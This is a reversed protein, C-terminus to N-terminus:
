ACEALVSLTKQVDLICNLCVASNEESNDMSARIGLKNAAVPFWEWLMFLEGTPSNEWIEAPTPFGGGDKRRAVEAKSILRCIDFWTISIGNDACVRDKDDPEPRRFGVTCGFGSEIYYGDKDIMLSYYVGKETTEPDDTLLKCDSAGPSLWVDPDDGKAAAEKSAIQRAEEPTDVSIMFARFEGLIKKYASELREISYIKMIREKVIAPVRV